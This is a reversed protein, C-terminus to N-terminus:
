EATETTVVELTKNAWTKNFSVITTCTFFLILPNYTTTGTYSL